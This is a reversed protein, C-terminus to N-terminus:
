YEGGVRRNNLAKIDSQPLMSPSPEFKINEDLSNIFALLQRKEVASLHLSDGSLTQNPISFGHGTGGGAEYFEIVQDLTTFVGNHMYPATYRSNRITNTRFARLMEPAANASYRGSDASLRHYLSDAPVGLVEFESSIYPPKVGNFVPVFHCTGCRAKGMFLNFGNKVDESVSQKQNMADDFPASFQSFGAYYYTIASAIHDLSLQKEEPTYKLLKRFTRKYEKCSMVKDIIDEARGNMEDPKQMVELAQQQLTYHHGDLMLLHNYIVNVLSPTNRPLVHQGDFQLATLRTTDTFYETPKHCSACSRKNNGSILPDYFLLKGTHRIEDLLAPDDIMSYIGKSNQARFLDKEFISHSSNTLSYDNFNASYLQYQRIQAQNIAFLPNVYDRIFTFHDFDDFSAGQKDIFGNMKGYLDLYEKSLPMHPFSQNYATYIGAVAETMEKLEPLVRTTDPCEFGTTYIAALNLLFLRNALFFHAPKQLAKTTSDATFVDVAYLSSDILRALSDAQPTPEELYQAALSLGAGLRRYPPEFKEFVENEWEVPLPGNLKRYAIPDLYRYWFDARKLQRRCIEIQTLIRKRDTNNSLDSQHIISLLALQDKRLVQATSEYLQQYGNSPGLTFAFAALAGLICLFFFRLKM